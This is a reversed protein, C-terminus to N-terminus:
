LQVEVLLHLLKGVVDHALRAVHARYIAATRGGEGRRGDVDGGLYDARGAGQLVDRLNAACRHGCDLLDALLHLSVQAVHQGVLVLELQDVSFNGLGRTAAVQRAGRVAELKM